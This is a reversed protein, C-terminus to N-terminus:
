LPSDAEGVPVIGTWGFFKLRRSWRATQKAARATRRGQGGRSSAREVGCVAREDRAQMTCSRLLPPSGDAARRRANREPKTGSSARRRRREVQGARRGCVSAEDFRIFGPLSIEHWEVSISHLLSHRFECVGFAHEDARRRPFILGAKSLKVRRRSVFIADLDGLRSKLPLTQAFIQLSLM